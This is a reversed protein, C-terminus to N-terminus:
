GGARMLEHTTRKLRERAAGIARTDRRREAAQLAALADARARRLRPLRLLALLRTM